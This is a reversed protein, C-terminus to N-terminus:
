RHEKRKDVPIDLFNRLSISHVNTNINFLTMNRKICVGLIRCGAYDRKADM